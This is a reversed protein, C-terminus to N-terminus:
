VVVILVLLVRFVVVLLLIWIVIMFLWMMMWWLRCCSILVYEFRFSMFRVVLLWFVILIILCVWGFMISIFRDIGIIFPIM